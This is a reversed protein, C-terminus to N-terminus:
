GLVEQKPTNSINEMATNFIQYRFERDLVVIGENMSELINVLLQENERLVAEAQKRETIDM